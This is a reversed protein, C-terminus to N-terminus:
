VDVFSTSCFEDVGAMTALPTATVGPTDMDV